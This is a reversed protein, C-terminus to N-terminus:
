PTSLRYIEGYYHGIVDKGDNNATIIEEVTKDCTIWGDEGENFTCVFTGSIKAAKWKKPKGDEDVEEVTLVEGVAATQPADIKGDLEEQDVADFELLKGDAMLAEGNLLVAKRKRM